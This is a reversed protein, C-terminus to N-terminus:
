IAASTGAPIPEEVFEIRNGADDRIFMASGQPLHRLWVTDAGHRLLEDHLASGDETVFSIHMNGHSRNDVDPTRRSDPLPEAGPVEFVEIRADGNRLM